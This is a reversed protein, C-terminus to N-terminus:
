NLIFHFRPFESVNPLLLLLSQLVPVSVGSAGNGYMYVYRIGWGFTGEPFHFHCLPTSNANIATERRMRHAHPWWSPFKCLKRFAKIINDYFPFLSPSYSRGIWAWASFVGSQEGVSAKPEPSSIFAGCIIEGRRILIFSGAAMCEM